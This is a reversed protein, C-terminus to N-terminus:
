EYHRIHKRWFNMKILADLLWTEEERTANLKKMGLLGIDIMAVWSQM